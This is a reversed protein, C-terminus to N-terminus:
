LWLSPRPQRRDPPVLLPPRPADLDPPNGFPTPTSTSIAEAYPSLRLNLPFLRHPSWWRAPCCTGILHTDFAAIQPNLHVCPNASNGALPRQPPTLPLQWAHRPWWALRPWNPLAASFAAHASSPTGRAQTHLVLGLAVASPDRWCPNSPLSSQAQNKHRVALCNPVVQGVLALGRRGFRAGARNASACIWGQSALTAARAPTRNLGRSRRPTICLFASAVCAKRFCSPLQPLESRSLWRSGAVL